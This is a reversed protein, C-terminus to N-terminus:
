YTFILIEFVIPVCFKPCLIGIVQSVILNDWHWVGRILEVVGCVAEIIRRSNDWSKHVHGIQDM